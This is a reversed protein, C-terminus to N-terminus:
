RCAMIDEHNKIVSLGCNYGHYSCAKVICETDKYKSGEACDLEAAAMSLFGVQVTKWSSGSVLKFWVSGVRVMRLRTQVSSLLKYVEHKPTRALRVSIRLMGDVLLPWANRVRLNHTDEYYSGSLKLNSVLAGSEQFSEISCQFVQPRLDQKPILGKRYPM